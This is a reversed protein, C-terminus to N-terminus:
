SPSPEKPLTKIEQSEGTIIRLNESAVEETKLSKIASLIEKIIVATPVAVVVGLLGGVRAGTLIAIFIWFPNLGTVKGLVRPAIINELVQQIIVSVIVVQIAIGINQLALIFTVSAIGVSGGFPIIAMLGITLGFLLGFPVKLFLYILTLSVGLCIALIFQGIFYNRFSSRLTVSFPKQIKSPLWEILSRWIDNGHLLLYYTIVFTLVIDLLKVVTFLTVNLAFDLTQGALNKLQQKITNKAPVILGDLNISLGLNNFREDLIMLQYQGSDILEPLRNVLQQAQSIVPPLLTIGVSLLTLIAVLTVVFTAISRKLGIQELFSAPYNLLFALLSAVLIIILLSHFYGFITSFAWANLVILPAALAIALVRSLSSLSEWWM